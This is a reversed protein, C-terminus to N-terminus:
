PTPPEMSEFLLQLAQGVLTEDPGIILLITPGAQGVFITEEPTVWKRGSQGVAESTASLGQTKISAFLKYADFFEASDEFTDWNIQAVLMREATPGSLLSYRDGAWGSAADDAQNQDLHEELYVRLFFEGLTNASIQEWGKGIAASLNSIVTLQPDEQSFYKDPHLIQETSVPPRSYAANVGAWGQDDTGFLEAVFSAGDRQPFLVTKRVVRPALLLKNEPLPKTLDEVQERTFVTSIYGKGVQAVDGSILANLARFQDTGTPRTRKRLDAIDFMTQQVGGMYASAIALEEVAGVSTADSIVYVKESEDDFLASVQQLQIGLLIQELNDIEDMLGLAKYLEQAEFVQQRVDSRRYFGRTIAELEERTKFDSEIAGELQVDRLTLVSAESRDKVENLLALAQALSLAPTPETAPAQAAAASGPGSPAQTPDEGSSLVVLVVAGVVLAVAVVGGVPLLWRPLASPRAAVEAGLTLTDAGETDILATPTDGMDATDLATLDLIATAGLDGGAAAEKVEQSAMGLAQVMERASQYRDDPSKALAKLLTSELMPEFDPEISTPLPLPQHVHAMLTGAPTDARFPTQGLLMQYIMIGIAYLDSRHDADAGMAQEPAMYEPTGMAQSAQTFRTSSELMRALGFDALVPRGDEHLLVNAPKLDRHVIGNAHAHDLADALPQMFKLVEVPSLKGGELKDQLDGGLILENVIYTYGKDEGFDYIKLINPHNLKAITQAEQAFRATFTPDETHFSPLVKVAVYRDLNPDHCRFVTAMGGRGLQEIIRYRGLSSGPPITVM